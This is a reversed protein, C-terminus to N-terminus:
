RRAKWLTEILRLEAALQAAAPREGGPQKVEALAARALVCEPSPDEGRRVKDEALVRHAAALALRADPWLQEPGTRELAGLAWQVAGSPDQGEALDLEARLVSARALLVFDPPAQSAATVKQLGALAEEVLPRPQGGILRQREAQLLQVRALEAQPETYDAQLARAKELLRAAEALAAGPDQKRQLQLAGRDALAQGLALLTDASQAPPSAARRLQDIAQDLTAAADRGRQAQDQAQLRLAEGLEGAAGLDQPSLKLARRSWGVARGLFDSPDRGDRLLVEAWTRAAAAAHVYGEPRGPSAQVAQDCAAFVSAPAEDLAAGRSLQLAIEDVWLGCLEGWARPDSRGFKVAVELSDRAKEFETTAGQDDGAARRRQGKERHVQGILIRAEYLWPAQLLAARAAREAGDFDEDCYFILADVYMAPETTAGDSAVLAAKAPVKYRQVLDARLRERLNKDAVRGLDRLGARYLEVLSLGLGTACDATRYGADWAKQFHARAGATDGLALAGRGLAYEGPGVGEKGLPKMAEAIKGMQARVENEEETLDHLPLVLAFRMKGEIEKVDQGFQEALRRAKSRSGSAIWSATVSISLAAAISLTLTLHRQVWRRARYTILPARALIAEGDLWRKLDEAVARASGYRQAQEKEMCKRCIAALDKPIAPDVRGLPKPDDRLVMQLIDFPTGDFPFKGSLVEYLTAGLGYVDTRRDIRATDGRAQEPAMYNPTGVVSNSQKGGVETVDRALGFDTVYPKWEGEPSREVLVNGPKLDRHIVGLRNAAHVAECVQVMVQARQEFSLRAAVDSLAEGEILQMVIFPEGEEGWGVEYVRCVNEHEIRAQAQAELLLRQDAQAGGGILLKLAITRRLRTDNARYVRGMGGSGLLDILEYRAAVVRHTPVM